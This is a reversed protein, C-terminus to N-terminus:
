TIAAAERFAAVLGTSRPKNWTMELRRGTAHVTVALTKNDLELHGFRCDYICVTKYEGHYVRILAARIAGELTCASTVRGSEYEIKILRAAM